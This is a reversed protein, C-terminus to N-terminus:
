GSSEIIQFPLFIQSVGVGVKQGRIKLYIKNSEINRASIKVTLYRTRSVGGRFIEALNSSRFSFFILIPTANIFSM